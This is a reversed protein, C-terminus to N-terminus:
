RTASRTVCRRSDTKGCEGQTPRRLQDISPHWQCRARSPRRHHIHRRSTRRRIQRRPGNRRQYADNHTFELIPHRGQPLKTSARHHSQWRSHSHPSGRSVQPRHGRRAPLPQLPSVFLPNNNSLHLSSRSM